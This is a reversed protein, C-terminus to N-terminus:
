GASACARVVLAPSAGRERRRQGRCRRGTRRAASSEGGVIPGHVRAITVQPQQGLRDGGDVRREVELLHQMEHGVLDGGGEIGVGTEDVEVVVCDALENQPRRVPRRDVLHRAARAHPRALPDGAGRSGLASGDRDGRVGVEVRAPLLERVQRFRLVFRDEGDRDQRAVLQRTREVDAGALRALEARVLDLQQLRDRALDGLRDDVRLEIGLRLPANGLELRERADGLGDRLGEVQLLRELGDDLRRHARHLRGPGREHQLVAPDRPRFPLGAGVGDPRRQAPLPALDALEHGVAVPREGVLLPRQELRDRVMGGDRELVAARDHAADEGLLDVVADLVVQLRDGREQAQLRVRLADVRALRELMRDVPDEGDGGHVLREGLLPLLVDVERLQDVAEARHEHLTEAGAAVDLCSELRHRERAGARGREREDEGLQQLVRELM